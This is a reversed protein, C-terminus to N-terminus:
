WSINSRHISLIRFSFQPIGRRNRHEPVLSRCLSIGQTGHWTQTRHDSPIHLRPSDRAYSPEQKGWSTESGSDKKRRDKDTRQYKIGRREPGSYSSVAGKRRDKNIRRDKGSRKNDMLNRMKVRISPYYLMASNTLRLVITSEKHWIMSHQCFSREPSIKSVDGM